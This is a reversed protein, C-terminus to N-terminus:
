AKPVLDIFAEDIAVDNLEAGFTYEVTTPNPVNNGKLALPNYKVGIIFNGDIPLPETATGDASVTPTWNKVVKCSTADYLVVQGQNIPINPASTADNDQTIDVVDGADGSVKTYYFFVGPSVANIKANTGTGKTTYLLQELDPTLVGNDRYMLCTTATPAIVGIHPAEACGGTMSPNDIPLGFIEQNSFWGYRNCGVISIPDAEITWSATATNSGVPIIEMLVELNHAANESFSHKFTYWGTGTICKPDKSADDPFANNRNVNTQANVTWGECTNGPQGTGVVFGFDRLHNGANNNIASTYDFRTGDCSSDTPSALLCANGGYSDENAADNAYTADLYVDVQTQYAGHWTDGYGGWRTFPGSCRITVGGGGPETLCTGRDLRAHFDGAASDIGDAYAPNAFGNARQTITGSNNSWDVTDSEFDNSYAFASGVLGLLVGASLAAVVSSRFLRRKM